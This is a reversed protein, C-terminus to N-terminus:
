PFYLKKRREWGQHSGNLSSQRAVSKELGNVMNLMWSESILSAGKVPPFPSSLFPLSAGVTISCPELELDLVLHSFKPKQLSGNAWRSLSLLHICKLPGEWAVAGHSEFTGLINQENGHSFSQCYVTYHSKFPINEIAELSNLFYSDHLQGRWDWILLLFIFVANQPMHSEFWISKEFVPLSIKLSSTNNGSKTLPMFSYSYIHGATLVKM